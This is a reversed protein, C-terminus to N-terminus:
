KTFLASIKEVVEKQKTSTTDIVIDFFKPDLFNEDAYIKKFKKDLGEERKTIDEETEKHTHTRKLARNIRTKYDCTLLVKLVHPKNRTFYGQYHADIVIGGKAALNTLDKDIKKDLEDPIQSKEYLPINKEIVYQRFFEGASHFELGLKNAVNKAATTTGSAVPGSIVISRYEM